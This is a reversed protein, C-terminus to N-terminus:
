GGCSTLKWTAGETFGQDSPLKMSKPTQNLTLKASYYEPHKGIWNSIPAVISCSNNLLDTLTRGNLREIKPVHALHM